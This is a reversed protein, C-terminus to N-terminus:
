RRDGGGMRVVSKEGGIEEEWGLWPSKVEEWGLWPSKVEIEEKWGAAEAGAGDPEPPDEERLGNSCQKCYKLSWTM